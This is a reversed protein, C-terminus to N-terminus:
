PFDPFEIVGPVTEGCSDGVIEDVNFQPYKSLGEESFYGTMQLRYYRCDTSRVVYAVNVREVIAHAPQACFFNYYYWGYDGCITVAPDQDSDPYTSFAYLDEENEDNPNGSDGASSVDQHWTGADFAPSTALRSWDYAVDDAVKDAYIYVEQVTPPSGSVGGNSKIAAAEFALDWVDDADPAEPFVQSMTELDVYIWEGQSADVTAQQYGDDHEVITLDPGGNGDVKADGNDGPGVDGACGLTITGVFLLGAAWPITLKM